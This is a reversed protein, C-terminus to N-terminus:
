AEHQPLAAETYFRKVEDILPVFRSDNRVPRLNRMFGELPLIALWPEQDNYGFSVILEFVARPDRHPEEVSRELVQLGIFFEFWDAEEWPAFMGFPDTYAVPELSVNDVLFLRHNYHERPKYLREHVSGLLLHHFGPLPILASNGRWSNAGDSVAASGTLSLQSHLTCNVPQIPSGCTLLTFPSFHSIWYITGNDLVLPMYNKQKKGGAEVYKLEQREGERIYRVPLTPDGTPVARLISATQLNDYALLLSAPETSGNSHLDPYPVLKQDAFAADSLVQEHQYSLQFTPQLSDALSSLVKITLTFGVHLVALQWHYKKYNVKGTISRFSGCTSLQISLQYYFLGAAPDDSLIPHPALAPNSPLRYGYHYTFNLRHPLRPMRQLRSSPSSMAYNVGGNRYILEGDDLVPDRDTTNPLLRPQAPQLLSLVWIQLDFPVESHAEVAPQLPGATAAAEAVLVSSNAPPSADVASPLPFSVPHPLLGGHEAPSAPMSPVHFLTLPAHDTQVDRRWLWDHYAVGALLSLSFLLILGLVTLGLSVPQSSPPSLSYQRADDSYRLLPNAEVEVQSHYGPGAETSSM